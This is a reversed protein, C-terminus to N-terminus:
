LVGIAPEAIRWTGNAKELIAQHGPGLTRGGDIEVTALTGVVNVTTIRAKGLAEIAEPDAEKSQALIDNCSKDQEFELQKRRSEVLLDCAAGFDGKAIAHNFSEVVQKATDADSKPKSDGCAAPGALVALFGAIVCLISRSM